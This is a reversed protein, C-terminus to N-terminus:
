FHHLEGPVNRLWLASDWLQLTAGLAGLFVFKRMERCCKFGVTVFLRVGVTPTRVRCVPLVFACVFYQCFVSPYSKPVRGNGLLDAKRWCSENRTALLSATWDNRRNREPWLSPSIVFHTINGSVFIYICISFFLEMRQQSKNGNNNLIILVCLPRRNESM